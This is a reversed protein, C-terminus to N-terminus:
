YNFYHVAGYMWLNCILVTQHAVLHYFLCIKFFYVLGLDGFKLPSRFFLLYFLLYLIITYFFFSRVPLLVQLLHRDQPFLYDKRCFCSRFIQCFSRFIIGLLSADCDNVNTSLDNTNTKEGDHHTQHQVPSRASSTCAASNTKLYKQLHRNACLNENYFAKINKHINIKQSFKM